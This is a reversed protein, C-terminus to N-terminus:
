GNANVNNVGYVKVTDSAGGTYYLRLRASTINVVPYNTLFSTLNFRVYAIRTNSDDLRKTSLTQAESQDSSSSGRFVYANASAPISNTVQGFVVAPSVALVALLVKIRINEM